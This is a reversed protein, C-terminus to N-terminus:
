REPSPARCGEAAARYVTTYQQRLSIQLATSLPYKNMKPSTQRGLNIRITQNMHTTGDIMPRNRTLANRWFIITDVAHAATRQWSHIVFTTTRYEQDREHVGSTLLVRRWVFATTYPPVKGITVQRKGTPSRSQAVRYGRV